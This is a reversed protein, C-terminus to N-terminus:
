IRYYLHPTLGYFRHLISLDSSILILIVAIYIFLEINESQKIKTQGYFLLLFPLALPTFYKGNLGYVLPAAVESWMLYLTTYILCVSIIIDFSILYLQWKEFNFDLKKESIISLIILVPYLMYTLFDLPTDQWGLVGIMTIIIRPTKVIFTKLLVMLYSVPNSIIFNFQKSAQAHTNMDFSLGDIINQWLLFGTTAIFLVTLICILYKSLNQFKSKPLLFILPILMFYDKLLALILALLILSAIQINNIKEKKFLLRLLIAVWLFNFGIVMVDSTLASGLSLTMPMLALLMTTTKYFPIIKISFYIILTFFLFNSIRGLYFIALPNLNLSKAIYMGPIQSLYCIPSYLATNRFNLFETKNKELKIKSSDIIYKPTIKNDINKILFTYKSTLTKLSAPLYDGVQGKLDKAFLKNITIEYGRYFHAAEDVSQFPPLIFVYIFGFILSVILFFKEVSIEKIM